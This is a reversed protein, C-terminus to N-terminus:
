EPQTKRGIGYVEQGKLTLQKKVVRPGTTTFPIFEKKRKPCEEQKLEGYLKSTNCMPGL